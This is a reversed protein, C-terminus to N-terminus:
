ETRIENNIKLQNELSELRSVSSTICEHAKRSWSLGSFEDDDKPSM